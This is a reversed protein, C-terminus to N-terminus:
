DLLEHVTIMFLGIWRDMGRLDGYNAFRSESYMIEAREICENLAAAAILFREQANLARIDSSYVSNVVSRAESVAQCFICDPLSDEPPAQILFGGDMQWNEHCETLEYDAAYHIIGEYFVEKGTAKDM